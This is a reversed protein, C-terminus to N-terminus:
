YLAEDSGSSQYCRRLAVGSNLNIIFITGSKRYIAQNVDKINNQKAYNRLYSVDTWDEILRDYENEAEGQYHFAYLQEAFINVIKM